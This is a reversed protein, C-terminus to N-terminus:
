GGYSSGYPCSRVPVVVKDQQSAYLPSYALEHNTFMCIVEHVVSKWVYCKLTVVRLMRYFLLM